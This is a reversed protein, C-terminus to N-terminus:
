ICFLNSLFTFCIGIGRLLNLLTTLEPSAAPGGDSWTISNVQGDITVRITSVYTDSYCSDNTECLYSSNLSLPATELITQKVTQLTTTDLQNSQNEYTFCSNGSFPDYGGTPLSRLCNSNQSILGDNSLTRLICAVCPAGDPCPSPSPAMGNCAGFSVSITQGSYTVPKAERAPDSGPAPATGCGWITLLAITVARTTEPQPM